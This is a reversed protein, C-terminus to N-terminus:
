FCGGNGCFVLRSVMNKVNSVDWGGIDQNFSIAGDFMHSMDEVNSVDWGGIDGNFDSTGSFM